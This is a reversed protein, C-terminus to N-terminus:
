SNRSQERFGGWFILAVIAVSFIILFVPVNWIGMGNV